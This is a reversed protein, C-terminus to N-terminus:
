KKLKYKNQILERFSKSKDRKIFDNKAKNKKIFSNDDKNIIESFIKKIGIYKMM